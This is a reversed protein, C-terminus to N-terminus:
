VGACAAFQLSAPTLALADVTEAMRRHDVFAVRDALRLVAYVRQEVLVTAVGTARLAAVTEQILAIMSAQLGRENPEDRLLVRPELSLARAIALM